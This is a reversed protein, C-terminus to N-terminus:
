AFGGAAGLWEMEGIPADVPARTNGGLLVISLVYVSNQFAITTRPYARPGVVSLAPRRVTPITMALSGYPTAM